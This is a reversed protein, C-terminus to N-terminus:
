VAVGVDCGVRDAVTEDVLDQAVGGDVAAAATQLAFEAFKEPVLPRAFRYGQMNVCGRAALLRVQQTSEVGEAIVEVRLSRALGIITEVIARSERSVEMAGVFSRDIKLLSLPLSSLYSWAAYGTGCNDVALRIGANALAQMPELLEYRKRLVGAESVELELCEPELGHEHLAAQAVHLLSDRELHASAINVAVRPLEVGQARWSALQYCAQAIAWEGINAMLGIAEAADLFAAPNLLEDGRQWRILAEAGTMRHTRSDIQPQYHLVFEGSTLARHLDREIGTRQATVRRLGTTAAAVGDGGLEKVVRMSTEARALLGDIHDGDVGSQALGIALSPRCTRGAVILPQCLSDRIKAALASGDAGAWLPLFVLLEDGSARGALALEATRGLISQLYTPEDGARRVPDILRAAAGVLFEDGASYGSSENIKHMGDIDIFMLVAAGGRAKLQSLALGAKSIFHRRNPLGTLADYNALQLIRQQAQRSDTVDHVLGAVRPALGDSRGFPECSLRVTRALGAGSQLRFEINLARCRRIAVIASRVLGIRDDPHVCALFRRASVVTRQENSGLLVRLGGLDIFRHRGPDWEFSALPGSSVLRQMAFQVFDRESGALRWRSLQRLRHALLHEDRSLCDDAGLSILRDIDQTGLASAGRAHLVVLPLRAHASHARVATLLSECEQMGISADLLLASFSQHSLRLFADLEYACPLVEIAQPKLRVALADVTRRNRSVLLVRAVPETAQRDADSHASLIIEDM